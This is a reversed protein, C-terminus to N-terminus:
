CIDSIRHYVPKGKEFTCIWPTLEKLQALTESIRRGVAEPRHADSGITLIEGGMELYRKVFPLPPLPADSVRLGSTNVEMGIGKDILVRFVEEAYDGYKEM